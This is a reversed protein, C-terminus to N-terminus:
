EDGNPLEVSLAPVYFTGDKATVFIFLTNHSPSYNQFLFLLNRQFRSGLYKVTLANQSALVSYCLLWM